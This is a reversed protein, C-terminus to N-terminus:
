RNYYTLWFVILSLIFAGATVALAITAITLGRQSLRLSDAAGSLSQQSAELIETVKILQLQSIRAQVHAFRSDNPPIKFHRIYAKLDEHCDTQYIWPMHGPPSEPSLKKFTEVLHEPPESNNDM